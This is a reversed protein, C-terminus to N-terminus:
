LFGRASGREISREQRSYSKDMLAQARLQPNANLALKYAQAVTTARGSQVLHAMDEKLAEFHKNAPNSKFQEVESLRQRYVYDNSAQQTYSNGNPGHLQQYMTAAVQRPDWGMRQALFTLGNIPDKRLASEVDHYDRVAQQISTGNKRAMQAFSELGEYDGGSRSDQRGKLRTDPRNPDGAHPDQDGNKTRQAILAQEIDRRSSADEPLAEELAGEDALDEFDEEDTM